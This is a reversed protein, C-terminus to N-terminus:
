ALSPPAHSFLSRQLVTEIFSRAFPPGTDGFALVCDHQTQPPLSILGILYSHLVFISSGHAVLNKSLALTARLVKCCEVGNENKDKAPANETNMGHCSQMSQMSTPGAIAGLACHNSVALWALSVILIIPARCTRTALFTRLAKM